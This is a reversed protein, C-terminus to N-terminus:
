SINQTYCATAVVEAWLFLLAKSFILMTRAAEVLTRNQIEFINNQQPTRAVSTQHSIRIEEYYAKLTQNVFETGNNTRINRGTANLCVQIMKLFKIMFKPVEDQSITVNGMQYDGYGMIKAIHDNGFRVTGLFKSIFNILQSPNRTMYKSCGSDLYWLVIQVVSRTAKPRRSSVLIGQTPTAVLKISTEETPVVKTSTIRTLPFRNGVITFTKDHNADFLCKNCIACISEFKTDRVSHKVHANNIPRFISDMKNLSSKVKKPHEEVKNKQNSSPPRTIRNNKTNGSPKSRSASTTPTVRTSTLLPKNSDKTKLSDTQKPINCSSTVHEAFRVKKDKNMPTVDVLKECPKMLGPCTKSVCVLLEQVHKTFMCDSELLPESTNQKRTCKVLGHLTGTNEITKELYVEHADKNNKLRHSFTRQRVQINRSCYHCESLVDLDCSSLNAMLVAKASSIDDCDSNYADLDETASLCAMAKNICEIPDDGQQFTPVVLCSDLQPFEAQSQLTVPLSIFPQPYVLQQQPNVPTHHHQHHIPAAYVLTFQQPPPYMSSGSHQPPQYPNYLTQSNAVLALPDLYREHMTCVTNAHREHQSLYAYLQDYNTTYLSKALKVDTVFKSWKPPLANLFKTNVQVEQMTMEITHM